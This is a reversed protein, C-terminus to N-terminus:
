VHARGIEPAASFMMECSRKPSSVDGLEPSDTFDDSRCLGETGLVHVFCLRKGLGSGRRMAFQSFASGRPHYSFANQLRLNAFSEDLYFLITGDIIAQRRQMIHIRRKFARLPDLAVPARELRSYDFDWADCLKSIRRFSARVGIEEYIFDQIAQRTVWAPEDTEQLQTRVWERVRSEWRM